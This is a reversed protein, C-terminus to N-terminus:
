IFCYTIWATLQAPHSHFTLLLQNKFHFSFPFRKSKLIIFLLPISIVHSMTNILAVATRIQAPFEFNAYNSCSVRNVLVSIELNIYCSLKIRELCM